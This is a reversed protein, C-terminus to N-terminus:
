VFSPPQTDARFVFPHFCGDVYRLRYDRGRYTFNAYWPVLKPGEGVWYRKVKLGTWHRDVGSSWTIFGQRAMARLTRPNTIM